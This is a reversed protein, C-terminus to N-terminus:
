SKKIMQVFIISQYINFINLNTKNRASCKWGCTEKSMNYLVMIYLYLFFHQLTYAVLSYKKFCSILEESLVFIPYLFYDKYVQLLSKGSTFTIVHLM